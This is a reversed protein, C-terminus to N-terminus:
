VYHKGTPPGSKWTVTAASLLRKLTGHCKKGERNMHEETERADDYISHQIDLERGCTTCLYDYHPVNIGKRKPTNFDDNPM